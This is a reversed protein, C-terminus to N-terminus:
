GGIILPYIELMDGEQLQDDLEPDISRLVKGNIKCIVAEEGYPTFAAIAQHITTGVPVQRAADCVTVTVTSM